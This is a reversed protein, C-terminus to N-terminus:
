RRTNQNNMQDSNRSCDETVKDNVTDLHHRSVFAPEM